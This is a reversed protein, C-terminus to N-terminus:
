ETQNAAPFGLATAIADIDQGEVIIWERHCGGLMKLRLTGAIM